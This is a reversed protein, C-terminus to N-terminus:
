ARARKSQAIRVEITNTSVGYEAAIERNTLGRARAALVQEITVKPPPGRRAARGLIRAPPNKASKTRRPANDDHEHDIPGPTHRM